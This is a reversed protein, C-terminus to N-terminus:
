RYLICFLWVFVSGVCIRITWRMLKSDSEERGLALGGIGLFTICFLISAIIGIIKIAGM